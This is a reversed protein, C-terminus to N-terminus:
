APLSQSPSVELRVEKRAHLTARSQWSGQAPSSAGPQHSPTGGEEPGQAVWRQCGKELLGKLATPSQFTVSQRAELVLCPTPISGECSGLGFGALPSQDSSAKRDLNFPEPSLQKAAQHPCLPLDSCFGKAAQSSLDM